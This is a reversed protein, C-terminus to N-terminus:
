AEEGVILAGPTIASLERTLFAESAQDAVTVLDGPNKESIEHSKLTQFRPLIEEAAAARLIDAIRDPDIDIPAAKSM